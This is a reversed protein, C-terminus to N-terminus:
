QSKRQQWLIRRLSNTAEERAVTLGDRKGDNYGTAYAKELQDRTYLQRGRFLEEGARRGDDYGRSYNNLHDPKHRRWWAKIKQIM